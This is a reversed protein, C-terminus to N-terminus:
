QDMITEIFHEIVKLSALRGSQIQLGEDDFAERIQLDVSTKGGLPRVARAYDANHSLLIAHMNSPAIRM